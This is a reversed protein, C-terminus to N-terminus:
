SDKKKKELYSFYRSIITCIIGFPHWSEKLGTLHNVLYEVHGGLDNGAVIVM